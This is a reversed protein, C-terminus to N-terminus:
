VFFALDQHDVEGVFINFQMTQVVPRQGVEQFFRSRLPHLTSPDIDVSQAPINDFQQSIVFPQMPQGNLIHHICAIAGLGIEVRIVGVTLKQVGRPSHECHSPDALPAATASASGGENM